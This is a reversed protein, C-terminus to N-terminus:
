EKETRDPKRHLILIGAMLVLPFIVAMLIGNKLSNGAHESLFGVYTPGASCGLDGGLAFFAFMATGGGKLISAGISFAGPWMIGVSFGCIGCGLLSVAPFPSLSIMCYSFVCLMASLVMARKLKIKEGYLGYMLRSIGMCVAFFMPGALDGATKSVHLGQEAFASAWQSVSQESAGACVMTVLLIWFSPLRILEGPSLGKEGEENLTCIPVKLFAFFNCVPVLAWLVALIRWNRIGALAFFLTSLLVVAVHGWCYFSHLLSMTKEKNKTPLAEVVPSVLVELLGGGIAYIAVSIFLGTYPDPLVSPLFALSVLGAAAFLHALLMSVRYGIRDVFGASLFDIGLQIIFNLTILLTIRRMSIGYTTQFTLFLLPIFNNVIAQVVYGTYCAALTRNYNQKM